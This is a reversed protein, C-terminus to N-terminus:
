VTLGTALMPLFYYKAVTAVFSNKARETDAVLRSADDITREAGLKIDTGSFTVHLDFGADPTAAQVTTEHTFLFM